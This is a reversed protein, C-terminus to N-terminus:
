EQKLDVLAELMKVRVSDAETRDIEDRWWFGDGRSLVRDPAENLLRRAKKIRRQSAGRAEAASLADRLMMFYEHDEIGERCAEMQKGAVVNKKDLFLPTYCNRPTAYENWSSTGSNDGMAWFYSAPADYKVCDWAQLRYYCYPDLLRAPGACSYFELITGAAQRQVFFDRYDQDNSLFFRRNPCLVDCLAIMEPDADSMDAHNPDEWVRIGTGAARIAKAWPLIRADMAPTRPEDVLLWVLQHPELGRKRMHNAWFRMWEGVARDFRPSGPTGGNFRRPVNTFVCLQRAWPWRDHWKDFAATDPPTTMNGEADYRGQPTVANRAWPSDVYHERMHELFADRNEETVGYVGKASTYDWGGFHLTPWDPFRLPYLTLRLPVTFRQGAAQIEVVGEHTGAPVDIPHLTLWVQRTLGPHATIVFADGDRTALPLAAAVPRDTRTDTWDVQHVSVYEPNVGGPLGTVRIRLDVPEESANSINFATARYENAMMDVQLSASEKRPPDGFLELHDWTPSQWVTVPKHGQARWLAAHVKLLRAHLPTIPLIAQFAATATKASSKIESELADIQAVLNARTDKPIRAEEAKERLDRCDLRLRKEIGQRTKNMDVAAGAHALGCLLALIVLVRAMHM